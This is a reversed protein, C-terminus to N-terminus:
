REGGGIFSAGQADVAAKLRARARHVIVKANGYSTGLAAAIESPGFGLHLTMSVAAAERPSLGALGSEIVSALWRMEAILDPEDGTSALSPHDDLTDLQVATRARLDDIAAHRAIQLV